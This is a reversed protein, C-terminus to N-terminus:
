SGRLLKVETVKEITFSCTAAANRSNIDHATLAESVAM